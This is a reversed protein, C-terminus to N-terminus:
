EEDKVPCDDPFKGDQGGCVNLSEKIIPKKFCIGDYFYPCEKPQEFRIIKM